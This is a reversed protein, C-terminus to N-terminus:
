QENWLRKMETFVERDQGVDESTRGKCDVPPGHHWCSFCMFYCPGKLMVPGDRHARAWKGIVKRPDNLDEETVDSVIPTQAKIDWSGCKPCPKMECGMIIALRERTMPRM